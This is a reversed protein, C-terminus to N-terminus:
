ESKAIHTSTSIITGDECGGLYHCGYDVPVMIRLGGRYQPKIPREFYIWQRGELTIQSSELAYFWDVSPASGHKEEYNDILEILKKGQNVHEAMHFYSSLPRHVYMVVGGILAGSILIFVPNIKM